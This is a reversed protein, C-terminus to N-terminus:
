YVHQKLIFDTNVTKTKTKNKYIYMSINCM